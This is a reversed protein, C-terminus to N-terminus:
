KRWVSNIANEVGDILTSKDNKSHERLRVYLIHHATFMKHLMGLYVPVKILFLLASASRKKKLRRDLSPRNATLWDTTIKELHSLGDAATEGDELQIVNHSGLLVHDLSMVIMGSNDKDLQNLAKRFNSDVGNSGLPRKAELQVDQEGLKVTLDPSGMSCSLGGMKALARVYLEFQSSRGAAKAENTKLYPDSPLDRMRELVEASPNSDVEASVIDAIEDAEIVSFTLDCLRKPDPPINGKSLYVLDAKYKNLRSSENISIGWNKIRVLSQEYRDHLACFGKQNLKIIM